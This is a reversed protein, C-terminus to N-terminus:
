EIMILKEHNQLKTNERRVVSSMISECGEIWGDKRGQGLHLYFNYYLLREYSTFLCIGGLLSCAFMQGKVAVTEKLNEVSLIQILSTGELFFLFLIPYKVYKLTRQIEIQTSRHCSDRSRIETQRTGVYKERNSNYLSQFIFLTLLLRGENGNIKQTLPYIM